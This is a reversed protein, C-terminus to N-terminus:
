DNQVPNTPLSSKLSTSATFRLTCKKPVLYNKEDGPNFMKRPKTVYPQFTGLGPISIGKGEDLTATIIKLTTDVFQRTDKQTKGLRVSLEKVMEHHNM